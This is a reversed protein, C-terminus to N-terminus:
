IKAELSDFHTTVSSAATSRISFATSDHPSLLGHSVLDGDGPNTMVQDNIRVTMLRGAGTSSLALVALVAARTPIMSRLSNMPCKWPTRRAPDFPFACSVVSERCRTVHFWRDGSISTEGPLVDVRTLRHELGVALAELPDGAVVGARALGQVCHDKQGVASIRLIGTLLFMAFDPEAGSSETIGPVRM